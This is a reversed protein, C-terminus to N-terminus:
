QRLPLKKCYEQARLDVLAVFDRASQTTAADSRAEHLIASLYVPNQKAIFEIYEAASGSLSRRWNGSAMFYSAILDAKLSLATTSPLPLGPSEFLKKLARDFAPGSGGVAGIFASANARLRAAFLPHAAANGPNKLYEDLLESFFAGQNSNPLKSHELAQALSDLIVPGFADPFAERFAAAVQSARAGYNRSGTEFFYPRAVSYKTSGGALGVFYGKFLEFAVSKGRPGSDLLASVFHKKLPDVGLLEFPFDQFHLALPEIKGPYSRVYLDVAADLFDPHKQAVFEIMGIPDGFAQKASRTFYDELCRVNPNRTGDVYSLPNRVAQRYAERPEYYNEEWVDGFTAGYPRYAGQQSVVDLRNRFVTERIEALKPGDGAGVAAWLFDRNQVPDLLAWTPRRNSVYAVVSGVSNSRVAAEYAHEVIRQYALRRKASKVAVGGSLELDAMTSLYRSAIEVERGPREALMRDLAAYAEEPLERGEAYNSSLLLREFTERPTEAYASIAASFSALLLLATGFPRLINKM